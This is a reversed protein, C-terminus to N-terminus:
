FIISGWEHKKDPSKRCSGGAKSASGCYICKGPVIIMDCGPRNSGTSHQFLQPHSAHWMNMADMPTKSNM